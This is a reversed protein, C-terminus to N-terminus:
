RIANHLWDGLVGVGGYMSTEPPGPLDEPVRHHLRKIVEKRIVWPTRHVQRPVAQASGDRVDGGDVQLEAETDLGREDVEAAWAHAVQLKGPRQLFFHWALPADSM